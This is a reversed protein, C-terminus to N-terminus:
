RPLRPLLKRWVLAIPPCTNQPGLLTAGFLELSLDYLALTVPDVKEAFEVAVARVTPEVVDALHEMFAAQDIRSGGMQAAAFRANLTERNRELAEAMPGTVQTMHPEPRTTQTTVFM